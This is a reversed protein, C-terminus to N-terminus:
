AMMISFTEVAKGPEEKGGELQTRLFVCVGWTYMCLVKGCVCRVAVCVCVCVDLGRGSSM